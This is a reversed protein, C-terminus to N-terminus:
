LISSEGQDLLFAALWSNLRLLTTSFWSAREFGTLGIVQPPIDLHWHFDEEITKWYGEPPRLFPRDQRSIIHHDLSPKRWNRCSMM